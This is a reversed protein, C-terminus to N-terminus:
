IVKSQSLEFGLKCCFCYSFAILLQSFTGAHTIYDTEKNKRRQLLIAYLITQLPQIIRDVDKLPVRNAVTVQM